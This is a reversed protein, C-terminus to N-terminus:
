VGQGTATTRRTGEQARLTDDQGGRVCHALPRPDSSLKREAQACPMRRPPSQPLPLWVQIRQFRGSGAM